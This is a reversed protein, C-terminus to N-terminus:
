DDYNCNRALQLFIYYQESQVLLSLYFLDLLNLFHHLNLIRTSRKLVLCDHITFIFIYILM